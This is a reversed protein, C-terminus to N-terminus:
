DGGSDDGRDGRRKEREYKRPNGWYSDWRQQDRKAMLPPEPRVELEKKAGNWWDVWLDLSKGNDSGTLRMLALRFDDMYPQAKHRGVKAMMAMLEEVSEKDRINGLGLIRARIAAYVRPQFPNDSLVKISSKSGHQGIARLLAGGLEEHQRLRKDRKYAKHMVELADPHKMYRLGEIAVKQVDPDSDRVGKDMWEIVAADVIRSGEQLAAIREPSKGKRFADELAEVAAAVQEETPARDQTLPALTLVTSLLVTLM